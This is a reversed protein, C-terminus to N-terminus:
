AEKRNLQSSGASQTTSTKSSRLIAQHALLRIPLQLTKAPLMYKRDDPRYEELECLLLKRVNPMIKEGAMRWTPTSSAPILSFTRRAAIAMLITKPGALFSNLEHACDFSETESCHGRQREAYTGCHRL